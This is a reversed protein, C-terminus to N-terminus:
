FSSRFPRFNPRITENGYGSRYVLRVKSTATAHLINVVTLSASIKNVAVSFEALFRFIRCTASSKTQRADKSYQNKQYYAVYWLIFVFFWVIDCPLCNGFTEFEIYTRIKIFDNNAKRVMGKHYLNMNDVLIGPLLSFQESLMVKGGYGGIQNSKRYFTLTEQVLLVM